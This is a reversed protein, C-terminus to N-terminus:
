KKHITKGKIKYSSINFNDYYITLTLYSDKSVTYSDIWVNALERLFKYNFKTYEDYFLVLLNNSLTIYFDKDINYLYLYDCDNYNDKDLAKVYICFKNNNFIIEIKDNIKFEIDNINIDKNLYYEENYKIKSKINNLKILYDVEIDINDSDLLLLYYINDKNILLSVGDDNYIYRISNNDLYNYDEYMKNYKCSTCLLLIILIYVKKMSIIIYIDIFLAFFISILYRNKVDQHNLSYLIDKM